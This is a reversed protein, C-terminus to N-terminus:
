SGPSAARAAATFARILGQDKVGRRREVGSSVDVGWPRVAVVADAVNDPDLGGALMWPGDPARIESWDWTCGSGPRPSDLVLLDEGLEGVRMPPGDTASGARILCDTVDRLATFDVGRYGTGHLQVARLGSGAVVQRIRDPEEGHFVGVTLVHPPVGAALGAVEKDGVRRPSESLLFGVADAGSDVACAVDQVTRLGCIKVFVHRWGWRQTAWVAGSM